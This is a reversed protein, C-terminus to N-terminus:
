EMMNWDSISATPTFAYRGAFSGSGASNTVQATVSSGVAGGTTTAVTLSTSSNFTVLGPILNADSFTVTPVGGTNKFGRGTITLPGPYTGSVGTVAVMDLESPETNVTITYAAPTTGSFNTVGIYVRGAGTGSGSLTSDMMPFTVEDVGNGAEFSYGPVFIGGGGAQDYSCVWVDLDSTAPVDLFVRSVKFGGSGAPVTLYFWDQVAEGALVVASGTDSVAVSGTIQVPRGPTVTVAQASAFAVTTEATESYTTATPLANFRLDAGTVDTTSSSTFTTSTNAVDATGEFGAENIYEVQGPLTIPPDNVGVSSGSVFDAKIQEVSLIWKSGTPLGPIRFTGTPAGSPNGDTYGTVCSVAINKSAEDARRAVVNVGNLVAGANTSVTGTIDFTGSNYAASPYLSGLWGFDDAEPTTIGTFVIPYMTPYSPPDAAPTTASYQNAVIDNFQAHDLNLMHGVEHTIVGQFVTTTVEPNGSTNVGDIFRGNLVIQGENLTNGSNDEPGAFGLVANEAGSFLTATLSGDTDYICSTINDVSNNFQPHSAGTNDQPLDAGFTFSMTTQSPSAWPNIGAAVLADASVKSLTGLTGLDRRITIPPVWKLPTGSTTGGTGDGVVLYGGAFASTCALATLLASALFCSRKIM